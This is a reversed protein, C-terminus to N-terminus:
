KFPNRIKVSGIMQGDAFDESVIESCGYHEAYAWIHADFWSLQYASVARVALRIVGETPYYIDFQSLLEETERLAYSRELLGPSGKALPRTVAPLFEIVAQYPIAASEQAVARRLYDIARSQKDPFRHDYQYVLVNTDILATM